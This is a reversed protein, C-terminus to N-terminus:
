TLLRTVATLAWDRRLKGESDSVSTRLETTNANFLM